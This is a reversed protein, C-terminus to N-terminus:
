DNEDAMLGLERRLGPKEMPKAAPPPDTERCLGCFRSGGLGCLIVFAKTDPTEKTYRRPRPPKVTECSSGSSPRSSKDAKFGANTYKHSKQWITKEGPLEPHRSSALM